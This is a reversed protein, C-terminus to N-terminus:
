LFLNSCQLKGVPTRGNRCVAPMSATSASPSDADDRLQERVDPLGMYLRELEMWLRQAKLWVDLVVRVTSLKSRWESAM